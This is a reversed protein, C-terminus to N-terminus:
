EMVAVYRMFLEPFGAKRQDGVRANPFAAALKKATAAGLRNREVNLAVKALQRKAGLLVKAAADDLMGGSLDLSQLKAVLPRAVIAECMAADLPASRIGLHALTPPLADIMAGVADPSVDGSLDNVSLQELDSGDFQDPYGDESEYLEDLVCYTLGGLWVSLRELKGISGGAIQELEGSGANAFRLELDVLDPMALTGPDDSASGTLELRRTRPFLESLATYSPMRLYASAAPAPWGGFGLHTVRAPIAAAIAPLDTWPDVINDASDGWDRHVDFRAPVPNLVIGELMRAAPHALLAQLGALMLAPDPSSGLVATRVFGHHWVFRSAAHRIAPGVISEGITDLLATVATDLAARKKAIAAKALSARKTSTPHAINYQLAVLEGWPNGHSQLWDAFVLYGPDDALPPLSALQRDLEAGDVPEAPGRGGSGAEAFGKATQARIKEDILHDADAVSGADVLKTHGGTGTTGFRMVVTAGDRWVEWFKGELEFVRKQM